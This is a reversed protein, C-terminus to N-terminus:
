RGGKSAAPKPGPVGTEAPKPHAAGDAAQIAEPTGEPTREALHRSALYGFVMAPGITSGPGPYRHGMVSATTNGAAYLGDIVQGGTDIVRAHEDTLLGGMTGIDGPQVPVAYFPGQDIPALNPNRKMRPDGYYNDYETDGRGFDEDRGLAAFRNFRHVTRRLDAPNLKCAAALEDLTKRKILFDDNLWSRPTLRPPATAFLYHNRHRQDFILWSTGPTEEREIMARGVDVYSASENVFRQATKDVIISGPLSREWVCLMRTGDPMTLTPCWWSNQMNATAAGADIGAILASGKDEPSAVSYEDGVSQHKRRFEANRSFGGGALVVGRRARVRIERGNRDIVAGRVRGDDVIVEKLPANLWVPTGQRLIIQMLRGVLAPGMTVLQKGSALAKATRAGVKGATLLSRVTRGVIVLDRMDTVFIPIPPLAELTRMTANWPGLEKANFAEAQVVRGITSGPLETHYDPYRNKHEWRFGQDTFLKIMPPGAELYARRRETSSAPGSDEYITHELYTMAEDFSDDIGAELMLPNAPSWLGGGSMGATGGWKPSSEVILTRLGLAGATLAASLGAAGSGVVVVDYEQETATDPM